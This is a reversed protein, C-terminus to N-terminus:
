RDYLLRMILRWADVESPSERGTSRKTDMDFFQRIYALFAAEDSFTQSDNYDGYQASVFKRGKLKITTGGEKHSTRFEAGRRMRLIIEHQLAEVTQLHSEFSVSEEAIRSYQSSEQASPNPPSEAAFDRTWFGFWSGASKAFYDDYEPGFQSWDATVTFTYHRRFLDAEDLRLSVVFPCGNVKPQAELVLRWGDRRPTFLTMILRELEVQIEHPVRRDKFTVVHTSTTIRELAVLKVDSGGPLSSLFKEM